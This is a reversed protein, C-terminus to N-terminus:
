GQNSAKIRERDFVDFGEQHAAQALRDDMCVFSLSAPRAEAAVFAAALQLANAARLDHVRLFRRATERVLDGPAIENWSNRLTDLRRFATSADVTAFAGDRELRAIASGCEVEAGWWVLMSRDQELFEIVSSTMEEAVLLPVVASSDWFKM